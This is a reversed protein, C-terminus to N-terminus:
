NAMKQQHDLFVPHKFRSGLLVKGAKQEWSFKRRWLDPTQQIKIKVAAKPRLFIWM